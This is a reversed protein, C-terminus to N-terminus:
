GAVKNIQELRQTIAVVLAKNGLFVEFPSGYQDLPPDFLDRTELLGNRSLVEIIKTLFRSTDSM